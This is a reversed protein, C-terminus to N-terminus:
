KQEKRQAQELEQVYDLLELMGTHKMHQVWTQGYLGKAREAYLEIEPRPM